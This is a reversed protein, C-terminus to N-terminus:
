MRPLLDSACYEQGDAVRVGRRSSANPSAARAAVQSPCRPPVCRCAASASRWWPMYRRTGLRVRLRCGPSGAHRCHPPIPATRGTAAGHPAVAALEPTRADGPHGARTRGTSAGGGTRSPMRSYTYTCTLKSIYRTTGPTDTGRVTCQPSRGGVEQGGEDASQLADAGRVGIACPASGFGSNTESRAHQIRASVVPYQLDSVQM